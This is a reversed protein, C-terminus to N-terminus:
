SKPTETFILTKLKQYMFSVTLLLIGLGIFAVIKGGEPIEKIDFLFLKLLILTFISLSVMRSMIMNRRIGIRMAFFAILGWLVAYGARNWEGIIHRISEGPSYAL